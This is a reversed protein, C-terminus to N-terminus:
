EKSISAAALVAISYITPDEIPAAVRHATVAARRSRRKSSPLSLTKEVFTRAIHRRREVDPRDISRRHVTTSGPL